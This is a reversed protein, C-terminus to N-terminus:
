PKSAKVLDPLVWTKAAVAETPGYFRFLLFFPEGANTPLWNSEHGKPAKPGFYIDVAGDANKQLNDLSSLGIKEANKLFMGNSAGYVMVSWFQKVPVNPPVTLKYHQDGSLADGDKDVTGVTYFTGKGLYKPACCAWSYTLGREYYDFVTDNKFTFQTAISRQIAPMRWHSGTWYEPGTDRLMSVLENMALPVDTDLRALTETTPAWTEGYKYGVTELMRMAFKDQELVTEENLTDTLVKFFTSNQPDSTDFTKDYADIYKQQPPKSAMSLPYIRIQKILAVAAELDKPEFTKPIARFLHYGINRESVIPIYGAPVDGKYNAPLLLYKGGKGKDAGEAGIDELPVQFSNMITGFLATDKTAPPIEIVVPGDQATNTQAAVYLVQANPTLIWFKWNAPKSLYVIDNYKGGLKQIASYTQAVGMLPQSWIVLEKAHRDFQALKRQEVSPVDVGLQPATQAYASTATLAGILAAALVIQKGRIKM